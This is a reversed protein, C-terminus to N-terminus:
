RVYAPLAASHIHNDVDDAHRRQQFPLGRCTDFAPICYTSLVKFSLVARFGAIKGFPVWLRHGSIDGVWVLLVGPLNTAHDIWWHCTQLSDRGWRRTHQYFYFVPSDNTTM